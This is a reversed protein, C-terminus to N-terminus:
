CSRRDYRRSEKPELYNGFGYSISGMIIIVRKFIIAVEDLQLYVDKLFSVREKKLYAEIVHNVPVNIGRPGIEREAKTRQNEQEKQM